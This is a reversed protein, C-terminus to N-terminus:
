ARRLPGQVAPSPGNRVEFGADHVMRRCDSVSRGRNTTTDEETDRPNVGAEATVRNAGSRLFLPSPEHASMM